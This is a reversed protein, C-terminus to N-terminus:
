DLDPKKTNKGESNQKAKKEGPKKKQTNQKFNEQASKFRSV